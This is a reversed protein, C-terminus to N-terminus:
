NAFFPQLPNSRPARLHDSRGPPFLNQHYPIRGQLILLLLFLFPLPAVAAQLLAFEPADLLMVHDRDTLGSESFCSHTVQSVSPVGTVLARARKSQLWRFLERGDPGGPSVPAEQLFLDLDRM